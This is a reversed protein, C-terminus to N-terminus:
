VNNVTHGSSVSHKLIRNVTQSVWHLLCINCLYMLVNCFVTLSETVPPVTAPLSFWVMINGRKIVFYICFYGSNAQAVTVKM